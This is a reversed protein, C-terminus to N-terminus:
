FIQRYFSYNIGVSGVNGVGYEFSFGFPDGDNPDFFVNVYSDGALKSIRDSVWTLDNSLMQIERSWRQADPGLASLRALGTALIGLLKGSWEVFKDRLRRTISKLPVTVSVFDETYDSANEAGFVVGVKGVIGGRVSPGSGGFSLTLSPLTVYGATFLASFLVEVSFGTSLTVPGWGLGLMFEAGLMLAPPAAAMASLWRSVYGGLLASSLADAIYREAPKIIPSLIAGLLSILGIDVTVEVVSFMGSPDAYLVPSANAYLYRHLSTPDNNFGGFPDRNIFRGTTPNMYRARLYYFGSNPDFQEGTYRYHNVTFGTSELLVGFADYAYTDTIQPNTEPATPLNTLQRTSLQGDYLHYRRQGTGIGAPYYVQSLLDDAYTYTTLTDISEGGLSFDTEVLVQAYPQNKDTLYETVEDGVPPVPESKSKRIGDADYAYEVETVPPTAPNGDDDHALRVLRNEFDYAYVDTATGDSRSLTNGNADYTYTHTTTVGNSQGLAAATVAQYLIAEHNLAVVTDAGVLMIPTMFLAVTARFIRRRRARGGLRSRSILLTLPWLLASVTLGAFITLTYGAMASPRPAAYAYRTGDDYAPARATVETKLETLLRDNQDYTYLVQVLGGPGTTIMSLRNGVKDHTYHTTLNQGTPDNTVQEETLRYLADYTYDVRRGTHEVVALRNGAPGLTYAYSSIIEGSGSKRNEMFTLRNLEDYQYETETGNAYIVRQRNGVADYEYTCTLVNQGDVVEYVKWLRDLDDYEYITVRVIPDLPPDEPNQPPLHKTVTVRTRNGKLDYEYELLDGNAKTERALWGRENYEYTDGGALTRLGSPTYAYAITTPPDTPLTKSVLRDNEDYEFLTVDGNFDTHSIQNGNADYEFTEEEGLPLIRKIIRGM